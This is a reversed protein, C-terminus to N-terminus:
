NTFRLTGIVAKNSDQSGSGSYSSLIYLSDNQFILYEPIGSSATDGDTLVYTVGGLTVERPNNHYAVIPDNKPFGKKAWAFLDSSNTDGERVVGIGLFNYGSRGSQGKEFLISKPDNPTPKLVYSDPYQVSYGYTINTHTKWDKTTDASANTNASSNTNAIANTNSAPCAAFECRPGQRAVYSGDDCLKADAACVIGSTNMNSNTRGLRLQETTFIIATAIIAVAALGLMLHILTFGRRM